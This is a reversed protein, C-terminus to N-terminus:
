REVERRFQEEARRLTTGVSAPSIGLAEAVELYSLGSHRLVLVAAKDPGLRALVDRVRAREEAAVAAEEPGPPPVAPAARDERRNRRRSSRAQNLAQHVAARRVWAAPNRLGEPYHAHAALLVDQAVDQAADAQGLVRQAIRVLQPYLRRFFTEFGEGQAGWADSQGEMKAM